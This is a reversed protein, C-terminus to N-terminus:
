DSQFPSVGEGEAGRDRRMPGPMDSKFEKRRRLLLNAVVFLARTLM